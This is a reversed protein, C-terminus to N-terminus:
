SKKVYYSRYNITSNWGTPFQFRTFKTACIDFSFLLIGDRQSNFCAQGLWRKKHNHRLIGDQQSNFSSRLRFTQALYEYFEMGNPISVLLSFWLHFLVATSNWGTPFQFWSFVFTFPADFLLIGDRQSNFSSVALLSLPLCITSNWGTPFQFRDRIFPENGEWFLLIGDRQSNFRALADYNRALNLTSNWGTPFQFWREVFTGIVYFQLIGDRQSNFGDRWSPALWM